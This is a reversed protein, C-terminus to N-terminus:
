VFREVSCRLRAVIHETAAISQELSACLDTVLARLDVGQSTEDDYMWRHVLALAGVRAQVTSYAYAVDPSSTERAQISLLSSVIQLNNKVRHHVERTLRKQESLAQELERDHKGLADAMRDFADAVEAVEHSLFDISALRISTEGRGYREVARRLRTLPQVLLRDTVLWGMALAALWMAMPLLVALWRQTPPEGGAALAHRYARAAMLTALVGLPFLACTLAAILKASLPWEHIARPLRLRM